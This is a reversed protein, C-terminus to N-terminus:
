PYQEDDAYVVGVVDTAFATYRISLIERKAFFDFLSVNISRYM